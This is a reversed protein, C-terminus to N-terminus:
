KEKSISASGGWEQRSIVSMLLFEPQICNISFFGSKIKKQTSTRANMGYGSLWGYCKKIQTRKVKELRIGEKTDKIMKFMRTKYDRDM